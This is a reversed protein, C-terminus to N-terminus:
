ATRRQLSVLVQDRLAPDMDTSRRDFETQLMEWPVAGDPVLIPTLNKDPRSDGSDVAAHTFGGVPRWTLAREQRDANLYCIQYGEVAGAPSYWVILEMGEDQFWRRHHVPSEQKM